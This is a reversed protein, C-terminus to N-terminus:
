APISLHRSTSLRSHGDNLVQLTQKTLIFYKAVDLYVQETSKNYDPTILESYPGNLAVFGLLAFVKDRPDTSDLKKFGNLMNLPLTKMYYPRIGRSRRVLGLM